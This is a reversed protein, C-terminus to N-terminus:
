LYVGCTRKLLFCPKVTQTKDGQKLLVSITIYDTFGCSIEATFAHNTEKGQIEVSNKGDNIVFSVTMGPEYTKPTASVDYQITGAELDRAVEKVSYDALISDQAELMDQIEQAFSSFSGSVSSSVGSIQSQMESQQNTIGKLEASLKMNWGILLVAALVVLIVIITKQRNPVPRANEKLEKSEIIDM